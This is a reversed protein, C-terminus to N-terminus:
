HVGLKLRNLNFCAPEGVMYLLDKCPSDIGFDHPLNSLTQLPHTKTYLAGFVCYLESHKHFGEIHGNHVLASLAM